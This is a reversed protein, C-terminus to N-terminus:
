PSYSCSPYSSLNKLNELEDEKMCTESCVIAAIFRVGCYCYSGDEPNEISIITPIRAIHFSKITGDTSISNMLNQHLTQNGGWFCFTIRGKTYVATQANTQFAVFLLVSLLITKM